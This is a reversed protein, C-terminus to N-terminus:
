TRQRRWALWREFAFALAAVFWLPIALRRAGAPVSRRATADGSRPLAQALAIRTDARPAAAGATEVWLAAMAQAFAPSLALDGASPHVRTYLRYALGREARVVSLLPEGGADTWVPAGVGDFRTRREIAPRPAAVALTATTHPGVSPDRGAPTLLVAGAANRAAVVPSPDGDVLWVIWDASAVLAPAATPEGRRVDAPLGTTAAAARIAAEIYRADDRLAVDRLIAVRRAASGSSRRGTQDSAPVERWTVAAGIAPRAGRFREALLPAAVIFRTGPPAIRDAAALLSWSHPPRASQRDPPPPSGHVGTRGDTQPSLAPIGAELLRLEAGAGRLSDILARDALAETSLLAWTGAAAGAPVWYPGALSLVLASLVTLRLLLLWPDRLRLSRTTAPPAAALLRISGVLIPRRPRHSWLHIALPVALAGLAALWAPALFGTM